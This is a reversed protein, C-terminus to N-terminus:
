ILFYNLFVLYRIISTYNTNANRVKIMTLVGQGNYVGRLLRLLLEDVAANSPACLLLRQKKSFRDVLQTPAPLPTSLAHLLVPQPNLSSTSTSTSTSSSTPPPVQVPIKANVSVAEKEREKEKDKEKERDADSYRHLLASVM